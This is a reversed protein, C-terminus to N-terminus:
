QHRLRSSISSTGLLICPRGEEVRRWRSGPRSRSGGPTLVRLGQTSRGAQAPSGEGVGGVEVEEKSCYIPCLPDPSGPDPQGEILTIVM